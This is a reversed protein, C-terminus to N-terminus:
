PEGKGEKGLDVIRWVAWLALALGLGLPAGVSAILLPWTIRDGHAAIVTFVVVAGQLLSGALLVLVLSGLAHTLFSRAHVLAVRAEARALDVASEVVRAMALSPQAQSDRIEEEAAV